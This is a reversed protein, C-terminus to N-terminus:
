YPFDEVDDIKQMGSASDINAAPADQRSGIFEVESALVELSACPEGKNNSYSHASVSGVVAVKKGKTLYKACNEGLGDWATVRFYETNEQQNEAKKRRNVAVSIVCVHKGSPTVRLEPDKTCNGIIFLRNM